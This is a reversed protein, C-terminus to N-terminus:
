HIGENDNINVATTSSPISITVGDPNTSSLSVTFDHDFELSHDDIISVPACATSGVGGGSAFTVTLPDPVSYDEGLVSSARFLLNILACCSHLKQFMGAKAGDTASLTVEIDCELGGTPLAGIEVCVMTTGVDEQVSYMGQEFQVAMASVALSVNKLICNTM